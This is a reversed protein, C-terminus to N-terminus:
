PRQPLSKLFYGTLREATRDYTQDDYGDNELKVTFRMKLPGDDLVALESANVHLIGEQSIDELTKTLSAAPSTYFEIELADLESPSLPTGEESCVNLVYYLDDRDKYITKM